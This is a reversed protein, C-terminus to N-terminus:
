RSLIQNIVEEIEKYQEETIHTKNGFSRMKDFLSIAYENQYIKRKELKFVDIPIRPPPNERFTEAYIYQPLFRAYGFYPFISEYYQVQIPLKTTYEPTLRAVLSNSYALSGILKVRKANNYYGISTEFPRLERGGGYQWVNGFAFIAVKNLINMYYNPNESDKRKNRYFDYWVNKGAIIGVPNANPSDLPLDANIEYVYIDDLSIITIPKTPTGTVILPIESFIIDNRPYKNLNSLNIRRAKVLQDIMLYTNSPLPKLTIAISTNKLSYYDIKVPSTPLAGFTITGTQYDIKYETNTLPVNVKTCPVGNATVAEGISMPPNAVIGKLTGADITVTEETYSNSVIGGAGIPNNPNTFVIYKNFYDQWQTGREAYKSDVVIRYDSSNLVTWTGNGNNDANISVIVHDPTRYNLYGCVLTGVENTGVPDSPYNIDIQYDGNYAWYSQSPYLISGNTKGVGKSVILQWNKSRSDNGFDVVAGSSPNEDIYNLSIQNKSENYTYHLERFNAANDGWRSVFWKSGIGLNEPEPTIIGYAPNILRSPVLYLSCFTVNFRPSPIFTLWAEPRRSDFGSGPNPDGYTDVPGKGSENGTAYSPNGYQSWVRKYGDDFLSFNNNTYDNDKGIGIITKPAILNNIFLENEDGSKYYFDKDIYDEYYKKLTDLLVEYNGRALDYEENFFPVKVKYGGHNIDEILNYQQGNSDTSTLNFNPVYSDPNPYHFYKNSPISGFIANESKNFPIQSGGWPDDFFFSLGFDKTEAVYTLFPYNIGDATSQSKGGPNEMLKYRKKYDTAVPFRGVPPEGEGIYFGSPGTYSNPYIMSYVHGSVFIDGGASLVPGPIRNSKMIDLYNGKNPIVFLIDGNAHIPGGYYKNSTFYEVAIQLDKPHFIMYDTPTSVRIRELIVEKSDRYEAYIVVINDHIGGRGKLTVTTRKLKGGNFEEEVAKNTHIFYNDKYEWETRAFGAMAIWYAVINNGETIGVIVNSLTLSLFVGGILLLLSMLLLSLILVSGKSKLNLM